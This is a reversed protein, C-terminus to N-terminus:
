ASRDFIIQIEIFLIRDDAGPFKKSIFFKM